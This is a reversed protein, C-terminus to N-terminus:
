LIHLFHVYLMTVQSYGFLDSSKVGHYNPDPTVSPMKERPSDKVKDDKANSKCNIGEEVTDKDPYEPVSEMIGLTFAVSAFPPTDINWSPLYIHTCGM